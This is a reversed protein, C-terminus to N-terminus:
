FSYKQFLTGLKILEHRYRTGTYSIDQMVTFTQKDPQPFWLTTCSESYQSLGPTPLYKIGSNNSQGKTQFLESFDALKLLM